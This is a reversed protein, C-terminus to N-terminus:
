AHGAEQVDLTGAAALIDAYRALGAEEREGILYGVHHRVYRAAWAPDEDRERAWTRALAERAVVGVAAARDVEAEIARREAPALGRRATWRAYVFPLGEEESWCAGLDLVEGPWAPRYRMAPDGIVLVADTQAERPDPGARAARRWVVGTAGRRALLYRALAASSRSAADLLVTRVRAAPCRLFLLVSAVEGDSTIGYRGLFGDGVGRFAEAVPLLAADVERAELRHSLASPVDRVQRVAPDLDAVLPVANLYPVVGLTVM